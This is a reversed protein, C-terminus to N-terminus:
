RNLWGPRRYGNAPPIFNRGRLREGPGKGEVVQERGGAGHENRRIGQGQKWHRVGLVEAAALNYVSCDWAHNNGGSKDEWIGKENLFEACMQRAWEFTTESHYRWSGPDGPAIALKNSLTNKFYTVDGRLLRLGGQIPRKTGPYFEVDTLGYPAAMHQVGQFPLLRGRHLRAFDYVDATRHGMADQITLAVHCPNGDADPYDDEWLIRQLAEWTEVYGERVAWSELDRGWGWARIEYWFGVDQTDVGATLCSVVGGGPVVGRPRDDRLTLIADEQREQKRIVWAEAKHGNVFDKYKNIDHRGKLYAAAAKSLSVFPSIWSPLHFGIKHPRERELYRFLELGMMGDASQGKSGAGQERARWEGGKVARDRDVDDWMGHCHPCEYRALCEREMREPSPDNEQSRGGSEQGGVGSEQGKPWRVQDFVMRQMVGCMPCPVHYDFVVEAEPDIGKAPNGMLALWIPGNEITPTSLKIIKHDYRYTITRKEALSIPDAERLNAVAPYKDTEDLIVFRIPKNALRAASGAWALYIPMHILKIRLNTKDDEWGTLYGRLRPSDEIMPLLRDKNNEKATLADPYVLMAPGPAMDIAWGLFNNVAETKGVQPAACIIATRVSPFAMADMIGPLYPTVENRWAGQFKGMSIIRHREAWVSVRIKKRQRMIRREADSFRFRWGDAPIAVGTWWPDSPDINVASVVQM